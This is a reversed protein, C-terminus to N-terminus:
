ACASIGGGGPAAPANDSDKFPNAKALCEMNGCGCCDWRIGFWRTAPADKSKPKDWWEPQENDKDIRLSYGGKVAGGGISCDGEKFTQRGKWTDMLKGTQDECFFKVEGQHKVIGCSNRFCFGSAVDHADKFNKGVRIAELFTIIPTKPLEKPCKQCTRDIECFFDIKQIIYGYETSCPWKSKTSPDLTWKWKICAEGSKADGCKANPSLLQKVPTITIHGSPDVSLIPSHHVYAYLNSGDLFLLPDTSLWRAYEPRYVRSRVYVDDAIPNAYYGLAGKFGFPNLVAGTKEVVDGFASYTSTEVVDGSQDTLARTNGEGDYHHVYTQGNRRQSLLQGRLGPEHTYEAIVNGADDFEAAINDDLEDWFYHVAPM